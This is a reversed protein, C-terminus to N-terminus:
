RGTSTATTSASLQPVAPLLQEPTSTAIKMTELPPVNEIPQSRNLFYYTAFGGIGILLLTIIIGALVNGWSSKKEIGGTTITDVSVSAVDSVPTVEQIRPPVVVPPITQSSFAGEFASEQWGNQKLVAKIQEDTQGVARSQQIFNLLEQNPM